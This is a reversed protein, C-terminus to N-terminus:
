QKGGDDKEEAKTEGKTTQAPPAEIKPKIGVALLIDQAATVRFNPIQEQTVEIAKGNKLYVKLSVDKGNTVREIKSLQPHNKFTRTEAFSGDNRGKTQFESEDPAPRPGLTPPLKSTDPNVVKVNASNGNFANADVGNMPIMQSNANTVVVVEANAANINVVAANSNATKETASSCASLFMFLSLIIVTKKM